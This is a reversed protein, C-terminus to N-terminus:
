KYRALNKKLENLKVSIEATKKRRKAKREKDSLPADGAGEGYMAALRAREDNDAKKDEDKLWDLQEPQGSNKIEKSM